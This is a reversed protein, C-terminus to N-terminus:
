LDVIIKIVEVKKDLIRSTFSYNEPYCRLMKRKGTHLINHYLIIVFACLPLPVCACISAVYILM